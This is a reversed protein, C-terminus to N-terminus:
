NQNCARAGARMKTRIMHGMSIWLIKEGDLTRWFDNIGWILLGWTHPQTWDVDLPSSLTVVLLFIFVHLAFMLIYLDYRLANPIHSIDCSVSGILYSNYDYWNIPTGISFLTKHM